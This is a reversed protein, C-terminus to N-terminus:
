ERVTRIKCPIEKFVIEKETSSIISIELPFIEADSCNPFWKRGQPVVIILGNDDGMAAFTKFNGSYFPINFEKTLTQCFREVNDVPLGIESICLLDKGSFDKASENKLNHRAIFEIINGSPDYFYFSHANWNIFDFEDSDDLTILQLRSLAWKKAENFKNEPINFAFHYFPKSREAQKFTIITSSTQVSFSFKDETKIKLGLVSTYFEKQTELLHTLLIIEKINM